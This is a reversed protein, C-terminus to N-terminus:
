SLEVSLREGLACARVSVFAREGQQRPPITSAAPVSVAGVYSRRGSQREESWAVAGQILSFLPLM